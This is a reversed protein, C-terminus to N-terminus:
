LELRWSEVFRDYDAFRASDWRKADLRIAKLRRPSHEPQKQNYIAALGRLLQLLRAARPPEGGETEALLRANDPHPSKLYFSQNNVTAAVMWWTRSYLVNTLDSRAIDITEGSITEGRLIYYTREPRTADPPLMVTWAAVPYSSRLLVFALVLPVFLAGTLITYRLLYRREGERCAEDGSRM